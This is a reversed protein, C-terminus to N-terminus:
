RLDLGVRLKAAVLRGDEDLNEEQKRWSEEFRSHVYPELLDRDVALHLILRSMAVARPTDKERRDVVYAQVQAHVEEQLSEPMNRSAALIDPFLKSAENLQERDEQKRRLLGGSEVFQVSAVVDLWPLIQGFSYRWQMERIRGKPTVRQNEAGAQCHFEDVGAERLLELDREWRVGSHVLRRMESAREMLTKAEDITEPRSFGDILSISASLWADWETADQTCSLDALARREVSEVQVLRERWAHWFAAENEDDANLLAHSAGWADLEDKAQQILAIRIRPPLTPTSATDMIKDIAADFGNVAESGPLRDGVAPGMAEVDLQRLAGSWREWSEALESLPLYPLLLEARLLLDEGYDRGTPAAAKLLTDSAELVAHFVAPNGPGTRMAHLLAYYALDHKSEELARRAMALAADQEPAAGVGDHEVQVTRSGDEHRQCAASTAVVLAMLLLLGSFRAVASLGREFLPGVTTSRPLVWPVCGGSTPGPDSGQRSDLIHESVWAFLAAPVRFGPAELCSVRLV